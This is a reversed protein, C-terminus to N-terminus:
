NIFQGKSNRSRPNALNHIRTHEAKSVVQLNSLDNNEHNHDIHHVIYGKKLYYWDGVKDFKDDGFLSHNLEALYRHQKVRGSVANRHWEGVYIMVDNLHNNKRPRNGKIFTPNQEGKLGYQHNARGKFMIKRAANNCERSCCIYDKWKAKKIIYPKRHFSKGCIPCILNDPAKKGGM